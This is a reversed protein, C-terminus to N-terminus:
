LGVMDEGYGELWHGMLALCWYYTWILEGKEAWFSQFFGTPFNM